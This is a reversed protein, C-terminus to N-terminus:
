TQTRSIPKEEFKKKENVPSNQNQNIKSDKSQEGIKVKKPSAVEM